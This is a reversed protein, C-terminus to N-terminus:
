FVCPNPYAVSPEGPISEAKGAAEPNATVDGSDDSWRLAVITRAAEGLTWEGTITEGNETRM